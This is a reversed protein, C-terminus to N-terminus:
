YKEGYKDAWQRVIKLLQPTALTGLYRKTSSALEKGSHKKVIRNLFRIPGETRM